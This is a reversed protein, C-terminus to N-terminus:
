RRIIIMMNDEEGKWALPLELDAVRWLQVNSTMRCRFSHIGINAHLALLKVLVFLDDKERLCALVLSATKHKLVVDNISINLGGLTVKDAVQIDQGLMAKKGVLGDKCIDNSHLSRLQSNIIGALTTEEFVNTNCVPEAIAKMRLHLREIIFADIVLPATTWQEAIDFMWHFKPRVFSEGYALKHKRLHDAVATALMGGADPLAVQGSKALRIVDMIHCCAQFSDLAPAVEESGAPVRTEAFHRVLGYAALLESCSCKLHTQEPDRRTDFMQHLYRNKAHFAPYKWDEQMFRQLMGMDIGFTSVSQILRYTEESLVGDQLMTHVWDYQVMKQIHMHERLDLDALIGQPTPAFGISKQLQEYRGKAAVGREVLQLGELLSDIAGFLEDDSFAAFRGADHCCVSVFTDSYENIASRKSVINWHKLCPKTAGAGKWEFAIKLGEGDAICFALSAFLLTPRGELNLAVGGKALGDPSLLLLRLVQRLMASFGGAVANMKHHRVCVPTIWADEHWLADKGLEVFSFSVNMTKRWNHAKLKAGPIFEDWGVILQWPSQSSCPYVRLADAFLRQLSASEEVLLALLKNPDAFKWLWSGGNELPMDIEIKVKDFPEMNLKDLYFRSCPTIQVKNLTHLIVELGRNSINGAHLLHSLQRRTTPSLCRKRGPPMKCGRFSESSIEYYSCQASTALPRVHIDCEGKARSPSTSM